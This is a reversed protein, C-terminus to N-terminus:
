FKHKLNEVLNDLINKCIDVKFASEIERIGTPSTVNIETIYNGIVDLGVLFLGKEKLTPGVQECLFKDQENLTSGHAKAGKALNGRFDNICPIRAIAYPYPEGNIMLIRKDGNSIEPIFRQAMIPLTEQQTLLELTVNVNLEKDNLVFISQGAMGYLPKVVIKQHEKLFLRILAADASVLLPPCCQKFWLPYLKENADRIAQPNNVIYCGQSQALELLYTTYLYARDFPPDKRMLIVDFEKLPYAVAENQFIAWNTSEHVSIKRCMGYVNETSAFLDKPQSYFIEWQRKQAEILLALTSDKEVHIAEIADMIALLKM